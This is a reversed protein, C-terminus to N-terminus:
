QNEKKRLQYIIFLYPAIIVQMRGPSYEWQNSRKLGLLLGESPIAGQTAFISVLAWSLESVKEFGGKAQPGGHGM